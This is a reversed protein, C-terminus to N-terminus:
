TILNKILEMRKIYWYQHGETCGNHTTQNEHLRYHLLTDNMNHIYKYQKLIRLMLEFDETKTFKPNYNGVNLIDSKRYCLTPHNVLWHIPNKKFEDYFL